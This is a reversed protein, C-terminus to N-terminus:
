PAIRPPSLIKPFAPYMNSVAGRVGSEAAENVGMGLPDAFRRIAEEALGVHLRMRGGLFREPDLFGSVVFADSLTAEKGGRGYCAPGPHAGTSHPGVKPVGVEDVWAISGGGAGIATVGVEPMM